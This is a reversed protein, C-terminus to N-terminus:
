ADTATPKVLNGTTTRAGEEIWFRVSKMFGSAGFVADESSGANVTAQPRAPM